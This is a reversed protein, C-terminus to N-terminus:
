KEGRLTITFEGLNNLFTAWYSLVIIAIFLSGLFNILEENRPHFVLFDIIELTIILVWFACAWVIGLILVTM